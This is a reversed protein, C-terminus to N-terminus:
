THHDKGKNNVARSGETKNESKMELCGIQFHNGSEIM